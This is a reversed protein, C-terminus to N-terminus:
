EQVISWVTIGTISQGSDLNTVVAKFYKAAPNIPFTVQVAGGGTLFAVSQTAYEYGATDFNSNDSSAYVKVTAGMTASANFTLNVQIACQLATSLDEAACEGIVTSSSAAATKNDLLKTVTKGLGM